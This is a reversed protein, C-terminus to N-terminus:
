WGDSRGRESSDPEPTIVIDDSVNENGDSLQQVLQGDKVVLTMVNGVSDTYQIVAGENHTIDPPSPTPAQPYELAQLHPPLPKIQPTIRPIEYIATPNQTNEKKNDNTKNKMFSPTDNSFEPVPPKQRMFLVNTGFSISACIVCLCLSMIKTSVYRSDFIFWGSVIAVCLSVVFVTEITDM